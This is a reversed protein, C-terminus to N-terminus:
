AGGGEQAHEGGGGEQERWVQQQGRVGAAAGAGVWRGPQKSWSSSAALAYSLIISHHSSCLVAPSLPPMVLKSGESYSFSMPHSCPTVCTPLQPWDAMMRPFHVTCPM